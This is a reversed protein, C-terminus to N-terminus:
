LTELTNQSHWYHCCRHGAHDHGRVALVVRVQCMLVAKSKPMCAIALEPGGASKEIYNLDACCNYVLLIM